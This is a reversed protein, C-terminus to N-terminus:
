DNKIVGQKNIYDKISSTVRTTNEEPSFDAKEEYVPHLYANVSVKEMARLFQRVAKKDVKYESEIKSIADKCTKEDPTYFTGECGQYWPYGFILAPIGRVVAEWGSTGTVTALCKAKDVMDFSPISTPILTVNGLSILDDYFKPDRGREGRAEIKWQGWHEKVYIQWNEPVCKSLLDVMLYQNVFVGGLPCTSSEPQFHLAVYVYPKNTDPQKTLSDYHKKLEKVKIKGRRKMKLFEPYSWHTDKLDIGKQKDYIKLGRSFGKMTKQIEYVFNHPNSMIKDTKLVFADFVPIRRRSKGKLKFPQGFSYASLADSYNGSLRKIHKESDDSLVVDKKSKKLDEYTTTLIESGLEFQRVPYVLLSIPTEQFLLTQIGKRKCLEYLVYDYIIHPERPSILLNPKFHELVGAWYRVYYQYQRLRDEYTFINGPDIRSMMQLAISECFALEQFLKQGIAPLKLDKCGPAPIGRVARISDHFVVNPFSKEVPRKMYDIGTWYCPEIQLEKALNKAVDVWFPM